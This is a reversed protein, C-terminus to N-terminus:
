NVDVILSRDIHFMQSLLDKGKEVDQGDIRKQIMARSRVLAERVNGWSVRGRRGGDVQVDVDVDVLRGDDKVAV